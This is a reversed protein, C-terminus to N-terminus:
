VCWCWVFFCFLFFFGRSVGRLAKFEEAVVLALLLKPCPHLLTAVRLLSIPEVNQVNLSVVFQMYLHWIQTLRSQKFFCYNRLLSVFQTYKLVAYELHYKGAALILSVITYPSLFNEVPRHVV